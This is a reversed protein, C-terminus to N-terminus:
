LHHGIHAILMKGDLVNNHGFHFYIRHDYFHGNETDNKCLKLHPECILNIPNGNIDIFAFQFNGNSKSKGQLSADDDLRAEKSFTKLLTSHNATPNDSKVKPFIDHLASLHYIIKNSFDKLIPKISCYNNDHFFFDIYYKKCEDIFNNPAGPYAGLHLRRFDFWSKKDYVIQNQEAIGDIPIMSIIGTCKDENNDCIENNIEEISKKKPPLKSLIRSLANRMEREKGQIENPINFIYDALTIGESTLTASYTDETIIIKNDQQYELMNGYDDLFAELSNTLRSIDNENTTFSEPIIYFHVLM